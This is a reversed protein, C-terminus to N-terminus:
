AATYGLRIRAVDVPAEFHPAGVRMRVTACWGDDTRVVEVESRVDDGPLVPRQFRATEVRALRPRAARDTHEDALALLATQHAWQLLYVGPLVPRGPFHGAFVPDAPGATVVTTLRGNARTEVRPRGFLTWADDNAMAMAM